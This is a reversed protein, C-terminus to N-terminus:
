DTRDRHQSPHRRLRNPLSGALAAVSRIYGHWRQSEGRLGSPPRLLFVGGYVLAGSTVMAVLYIPRSAGLESEALLWHTAALACLLLANLGLVPLLARWLTQWGIELVSDALAYMRIANHVFAPLVGLAVGVLGWRLGVVVGVILLGWTELQIFIEHGLRNHAAVVARSLTSLARFPGALSLIALALAAGAWQKGYVTVILPEAVWVLGLYIPLAYFAVTVTAGLFLRRSEEMRDQISALTRFLTQYASGGIIEFPMEALSDAKNYLGVKAVGLSRSVVANATQTRAYQIIENISIKLGFAGLRRAAEMDLDLAPRWKALAVAALTRILTGTLGGMILGWAAYGLIVYLVSFLGSLLVDVLILVSLEKFRTARQLLASPVGILPRLLFTLSALRLLSELRADNFFQSFYPAIINLGTVLGACVGLQLTFITDVDRRGVARARVLADNVGHAAVFGLIGTLLQVTVVLGFDEPLLLRALIVGFGFQAVRAGIEGGLVWLTNRRLAEGLSM